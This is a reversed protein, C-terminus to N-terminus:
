KLATVFTKVIEIEHISDWERLKEICELETDCEFQFQRITTFDTETKLGDHALWASTVIEKEELTFVKFKTKM